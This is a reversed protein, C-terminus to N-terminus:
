ICTCAWKSQHVTWTASVSMQWHLANFWTWLVFFYWEEQIYMYMISHTDTATLIIITLPSLSTHTGYLHICAWTRACRCMWCLDLLGMNWCLCHVDPWFFCYLNDTASTEIALTAPASNVYLWSLPRWLVAQQSVYTYSLLTQWWEKLALLLRLLSLTYRKQPWHICLCVGVATVVGICVTFVLVVGTCMCVHVNVYCGCSASFLTCTFHCTDPAMRTSYIAVSCSHLFTFHLVCVGSILTNYCYVISYLLKDQEKSMLWQETGYLIHVNQKGRNTNHSYLIYKGRVITGEGFRSGQPWTYSSTVVCSLSAHLKCSVPVYPVGMVTLTYVCSM